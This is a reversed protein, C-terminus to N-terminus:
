SNENWSCTLVSAVYRRQKIHLPCPAMLDHHIILAGCLLRYLTLIMFSGIWHWQRHKTVSVVCDWKVKWLFEPNRTYRQVRVCLFILRILHIQMRTLLFNFACCPLILLEDAPSHPSHCHCHGCGGGRYYWQLYLIFVSWHVCLQMDTNCM